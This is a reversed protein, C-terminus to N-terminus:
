TVNTGRPKYTMRLYKEAGAPSTCSHHRYPYERNMKMGADSRDITGISINLHTIAPTAPNIDAVKTATLRRAWM